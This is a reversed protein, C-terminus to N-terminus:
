YSRISLELQGYYHHIRATAINTFHKSLEIGTINKWGAQIAGIIESGSGFFPVVLNKQGNRPLILKALWLNLALPKVTLHNNRKRLGAEREKSSAKAVYFFRSAGGNDNYGALTTISKYKGYIGNTKQKRNARVTGGGKLNGTQADLLAATQEDLIINAPWRGRKTSSKTQGKWGYGNGQNKRGNRGQEVVEIGIRCGDINLPRFPGPKRALIIPEYAPKLCSKSKPFGQGNLWMLVDRIEFGADEIAVMLRHHTRSGGYVLAVAGPRLIRYCERWLEGGFAVGSRDWKEGMFGLEYPPDSLLGDYSDSALDPLVETVNGVVM